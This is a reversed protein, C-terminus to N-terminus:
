ALLTSVSSLVQHEATAAALLLETSLAMPAAGGLTHAPDFDDLEDIDQYLVGAAKLAAWLSVQNSTFVPRGIEEELKAVIGYTRLATCSVFTADATETHAARVLDAITRKGVGEIGESLGLHVSSVVELGAEELFDALRQTLRGTYPTAIAVRQVGTARLADITAGSATVAVRAGAAIMGDRLAQEGAIGQVFSGSSCAYLTAAPNIAGLAKTARRIDSPRALDKALGIGVPQRLYPTRTFYLSVGPPLYRWYEWDLGFDFPAVVGINVQRAHEEFEVPAQFRRSQRRVPSSLVLRDVM